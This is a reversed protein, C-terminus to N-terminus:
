FQANAGILLGKIVLVYTNKSKKNTESVDEQVQNWAKTITEKKKDNSENKEDFYKMSNVLPVKIKDLAQGYGLVAGVIM